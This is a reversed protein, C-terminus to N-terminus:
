NYNSKKPYPQISHKMNDKLQLKHKKCYGNIREIYQVNDIKERELWYDLQNIRIYSDDIINRYMDVTKSLFLVYRNKSPRREKTLTSRDVNGKSITRNHVVIGDSNLYVTIPSTKGTYLWNTAQYVTGEHGYYPDSFSVLMKIENKNKKLWLISQGIFWSEFNKDTCDKVFLRQLEYYDNQGLYPIISQAMKPQGSMGYVIVGVLEDTSDFSGLSICSAPFTHSYHNKVIFEKAEAKSILKVQYKSFQKSYKM